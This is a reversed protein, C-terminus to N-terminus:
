GAEALLPVVDSRLLELTQMADEHPMGPWQVRFLLETVGLREEHERIQEAASAPSGLIFRGRWLEDWERRLTDTPPLVESQGWTVYSQYKRDLYPRAAEIAEEDTPRICLERIAPLEAPPSGREDVLLGVQRELEDLSSHPNVLWTDAMRAARLVASDADAGMWIPPRPRQVPRIGLRARELRYGHGSATVEEGELLSRIVDLKETFTRVRQPPVAFAANEEDRYGLGVGLVFRGGTIADLTAVNEAVEVPNLLTILLLGAGVRMEGTEAALRGLLPVSQAMQWPTSLFHQGALVTRFANDRAFRVQELSEALTRKVDTDPPHQWCLFLGFDM